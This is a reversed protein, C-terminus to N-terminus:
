YRRNLGSTPKGLSLPIFPGCSVAKISETIIIIIGDANGSSAMWVGKSYQM